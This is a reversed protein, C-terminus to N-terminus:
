TPPRLRELEQRHREKRTELRIQILSMVIVLLAFFIMVAFGWYTVVKDDTRGWLGVGDAGFAPSVVGLFAVLLAAAFLLTGARRRVPWSYELTAGDPEIASRAGTSAV